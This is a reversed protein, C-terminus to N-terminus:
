ADDDSQAGVKAPSLTEITVATGRVDPIVLDNLCGRLEREEFRDLAPALVGRFREPDTGIAELPKVPSQQLEALCVGWLADALRPIPTPSGNDVVAFSVASRSGPTTEIAQTQFQAMLGWIGLGIVVLVALFGGVKRRM